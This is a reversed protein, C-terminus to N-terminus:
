SDLFSRIWNVFTMALESYHDFFGSRMGIGM